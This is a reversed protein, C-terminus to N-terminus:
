GGAARMAAAVEAGIKRAGLRSPHVRDAWWDAPDGPDMVAGADVYVAGPTIRALRALRDNLVAVEDSCHRFPNPRENADYYGLLVVRAGDSVIREVLAPIDGRKADAAILGDLNAACRRCGCEGLLDNAGGNLIVWDWRGEVYQGRIDGGKAVVEPSSASIRAGAVSLNAVPLGTLEEVVDPM